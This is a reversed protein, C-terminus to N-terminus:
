AVPVLSVKETSLFAVKGLILATDNSLFFALTPYM